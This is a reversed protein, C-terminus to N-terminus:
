TYSESEEEKVRLRLRGETFYQTSITLADLQMARTCHWSFIPVNNKMRIHPVLLMDEVLPCNM